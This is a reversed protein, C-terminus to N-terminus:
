GGHSHAAAREARAAAPRRSSPKRSKDENLQMLLVLLSHPVTQPVQYHARLDRAIAAQIVGHLTAPADSVGIEIERVPETSIRM